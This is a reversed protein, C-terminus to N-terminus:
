SRGSPAPPAPGRAAAVAAALGALPALLHADGSPTDMLWLGDDQPCPQLAGAGATARRGAGQEAAGEAAAALRGALSTVEHELHETPVDDYM